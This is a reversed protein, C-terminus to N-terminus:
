FLLESVIQKKKPVSKVSFYYLLDTFDTYDTGLSIILHIKVVEIGVLLEEYVVYLCEEPPLYLIWHSPLESWAM